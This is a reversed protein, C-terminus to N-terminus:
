SSRAGVAARGAVAVGGGRAKADYMARDAAQLLAKLESAHEPHLAIGISPTCDIAHQDVRIAQHSSTLLREAVWLAGDLGTDLLLLVFEDGGLRAMLDPGRTCRQMRAAFECLVLDGAEHGFRDNVEKFRDLDAYLLACPRSSGGGDRLLSPADTEFGRRNLLGTLADQSAAAEMAIERHKDETVDVCTVILDEGAPAALFRLWIERGGRVVTREVECSARTRVVERFAQFLGATYPHVAGKFPRGVLEAEPRGIFSAAAPNAFICDFDRVDGDPGRRPRLRLIGNPSHEVIGRVLAESERLAALTRERETVDRLLVVRGRARGASGTVPSIGVELRRGDPTECEVTAREAATLARAIRADAPLVDEIRYGLVADASRATMDLAARNVNVVRHEPDSILVGDHMQEFVAQYAVPALRFLDRRVFGWSFLLGSAVFALPTPGFGHTKLLGTTFLVNVVSPILIGAMLPAIQSRQLKAARRWEDALLVLSAGTLVYSYPVHVYWFWPGWPMRSSREGGADVPPHAWMIEHLENTWAAAITAVPIVFLLALRATTALGVRETCRLLFLFLLPPVLAIATYKVKAALVFDAVNATRLEVVAMVVWVAIAFLGCAITRAGPGPRNRMLAAALALYVVGGVALLLTALEQM